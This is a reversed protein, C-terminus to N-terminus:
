SVGRASGNEPDRVTMHKMTKAKIAGTTTENM